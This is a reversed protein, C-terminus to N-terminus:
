FLIELAEEGTAIRWRRRGRQYYDLYDGEDYFGRGGEGKMSPMWYPYQPKGGSDIFPPEPVPLRQSQDSGTVPEVFQKPLVPQDQGARESVAEFPSSFQAPGVAAGEKLRAIPPVTGMMGRERVPKSFVTSAGLAFAGTGTPVEFASYKAFFQLSEGAPLRQIQKLTVGGMQTLWSQAVKPEVNKLFNLYVQPDMKGTIQVGTIIRESRVALSSPVIDDSVNLVGKIKETVTPYQMATKTIRLRNTISRLIGTPRATFTKAADVYSAAKRTSEFGKGVFDTFVDGGHSAKYLTTETGALRIDEPSFFRSYEKLQKGASYSIRSKQLSLETTREGIVAKGSRQLNATETAGGIRVGKSGRILRYAKSAAAGVAWSTIVEGAFSGAIYFPGRQGLREAEPSVWGQGTVGSVASSVGAGILTPELNPTKLGAMEWGRGFTLRGEQVSTPIATVLSGLGYFSGEAAAVAGAFLDTAMKAKQQQFPDVAALPKLRGGTAINLLGGQSAVGGYFKEAQSTLSPPRDDTLTVQLPAPGEGTWNKVPQIDAVRSGKPINFPEYTGGYEPFGISSYFYRSEGRALNAELNARAEPTMKAKSEPTVKRWNGKVYSRPSGRESPLPPMAASGATRAEGTKAKETQERTFQAAKRGFRVLSMKSV